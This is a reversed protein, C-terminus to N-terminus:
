PFMNSQNILVTMFIYQKIPNNTHTYTDAQIKVLNVFIIAIIM